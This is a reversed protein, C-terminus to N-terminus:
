IMSYHYLIYYSNSYEIQYEVGIMNEIFIPLETEESPLVLWMPPSITFYGDLENYIEPMLEMYYNQWGCYKICPFIDAYTYWTPEINYCYVSDYDGVPIRDVIDLVEPTLDYYEPHLIHNRARENYERAVEFLSVFMILVLLTAIIAKENMKQHYLDVIIVITMLILPITLTYYHVFNRGSSVAFFTFAVGSLFSLRLSLDRWRTIIPVITPVVFLLLRQNWKASLVEVIHSFYNREGVYSFSLEFVARYSECLIGKHYFFIAIPFSAVGLGVIFYVFCLALQKYKKDKLLVIIIAIVMSCIFAANTARMLLLYGFLFGFLCGSFRFFALSKKERFLFFSSSYYLCLLLPVLSFEETLNGGEFTFSAIYLVPIMMLFQLARNNIEYLKFYRTIIVLIFFLNICQIIFIGMRGYSILQGLYEILFIYPGKMDFFDRYPLYGRTMGQGVLMFFGADHGNDRSFPSTYYSFYSMFLLSTVALLLYYSVSYYICTKKKYDM